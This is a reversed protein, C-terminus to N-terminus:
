RIVSAPSAAANSSRSATRTQNGAPEPIERVVRFGAGHFRHRPKHVARLSPRLDRAYVRWFGGRM